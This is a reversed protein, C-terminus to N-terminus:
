FLDLFFSVYFLCVQIFDVQSVIYLAIFSQSYTNTGAWRSEMTGYLSAFGWVASPLMLTMFPFWWIVHSFGLRNKITKPTALFFFVWLLVGWLMYWVFIAVNAAVAPSSRLLNSKLFPEAFAQTPHTAHLYQEVSFQM